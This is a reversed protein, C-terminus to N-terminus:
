VQECTRVNGSKSVRACMGSKSVHACEWVQECTRVNGSKSVRACM